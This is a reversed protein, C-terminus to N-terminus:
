HLHALLAARAAPTLPGDAVETLGQALAYARPRPRDLQTRPALTALGLVALCVVYIIPAAVPTFYDNHATIFKGVEDVFLGSGAGVCVATVPHVWRNGWLLTLLGGVLLLLGGWLAHALHYQGGGIQPYGTLELYLRAVVVNGGFSVAVLRLSRAGDPRQVPTRRRRARPAAPGSETVVPLASM